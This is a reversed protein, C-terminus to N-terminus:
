PTNTWTWSSPPAQGSSLPALKPFFFMTHGELVHHIYHITLTLEHFHSSKKGVTVPNKPLAWFLFIGHNVFALSRRCECRTVLGWSGHTAAFRLVNWWDFATPFRLHCEYRPILAEWRRYSGDFDLKRVSQSYSKVFIQWFFLVGNCVLTLIM